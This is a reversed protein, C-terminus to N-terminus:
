AEHWTQDALKFRGLLQAKLGRIVAEVDDEVLTANPRSVEVFAVRVWKPQSRGAAALSISQAGAHPTMDVQESTLSSLTMERTRNLSAVIDTAAWKGFRIKPVCLHRDLAPQSPHRSEVARAA